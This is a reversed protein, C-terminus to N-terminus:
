DAFRIGRRRWGVSIDDLDGLVWFVIILGMPISRSAAFNMAQVTARSHEVRERERETLGLHRCLRKRRAANAVLRWGM